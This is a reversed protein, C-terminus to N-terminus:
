VVNSTPQEVSQAGRNGDVVESQGHRHRCTEKGRVLVQQNADDLIALLAFHLSGLAAPLVINFSLFGGEALQIGGHM